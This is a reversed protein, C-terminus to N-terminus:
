STHEYRVRELIAAISHDLEGSTERAYTASREMNSTPSVSSYYNIFIIYGWSGSSQAFFSAPSYTSTIGNYYEDSVYSRNSSTPTYNFSMIGSQRGFKHYWPSGSSEKKWFHYGRYEGSTGGGIDKTCWMGYYYVIMVENSKLVANASSATRVSYGLSSLDSIICSKFSAADNYTTSSYYGPDVAVNKGISYGYCNTTYYNSPTYSYTSYQLDSASAANAVSMLIICCLVICVAKKM